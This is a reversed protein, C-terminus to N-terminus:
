QLFSQKELELKFTNKSALVGGEYVPFFKILSGIVYDGQMDNAVDLYNLFFAHACDEIISVSDPLGCHQKLRKIDQRLGFFHPILIAKTKDTLKKKIDELDIELEATIDFFIPTAGVFEVPEIFSPCHYAPVLVEDGKGIEQAKLALYFAARGSTVAYVSQLDLLSKVGRTRRLAVGGGLEPLVPMLPLEQKPMIPSDFM